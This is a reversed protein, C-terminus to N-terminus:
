KGWQSGEDVGDGGGGGGGWEEEEVGEGGWTHTSSALIKSWRSSLQPISSKEELLCLAM